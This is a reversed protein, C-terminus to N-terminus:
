DLAITAETVVKVKYGEGEYKSQITAILEDLEAGSIPASTTSVPWDGEVECKKLKPKAARIPATADQLIVMRKAPDTVNAVHLVAQKKGKCDGAEVAVVGYTLQGDVLRDAYIIQLLEGSRTSEVSNLQQALFLAKEPVEKAIAIIADEFASRAEASMTEGLGPQVANNMQTIIVDFPGNDKAALAAEQLKPLAEVSNQKIYIDLLTNYSESYSGTPVALVQQTFWTNIEESECTLYADDWQSFDTNNLAFYAGQLFKVVAPNTACKEGIASAVANRQSYDPIKGLMKWTSNYVGAQIATESLQVLTDFDTARPLFAGLFNDEAMTKDCQALKAFTRVLGAGKQSAAQYVYADCKGAEAQGIMTSMLFALTMM